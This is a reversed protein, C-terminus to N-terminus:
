SDLGYIHDSLGDSIAKIFIRTPDDEPLNQEVQQLVGNIKDEANHAWYKPNRARKARDSKSMNVDDDSEGSPLAAIARQPNRAKEEEARAIISDLEELDRPPYGRTGDLLTNIGLEQYGNVGKRSKSFDRPKLSVAIKEGLQHEQVAIYHVLEAAEPSVLRYSSGGRMYKNWATAEQQDDIQKLEQARAELRSKLVQACQGIDAGKCTIGSSAHRLIWLRTGDLTKDAETVISM